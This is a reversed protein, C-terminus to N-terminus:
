FPGDSDEDFVPKATQTEDPPLADLRLWTRGVRFITGPDIGVRSDVRENDVYTGNRSDLDELWFQDDQFVLEAHLRSVQSDFSLSIDCNERRGLM